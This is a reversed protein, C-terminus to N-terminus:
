NYENMGGMEGENVYGGTQRIVTRAKKAAVEAIEIKREWNKVCNKLEQCQNKQEVFKIPNPMNDIQQQLARQRRNNIDVKKIDEKTKKIAKKTKEM